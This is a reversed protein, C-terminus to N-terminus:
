IEVCNVRHSQKILLGCLRIIPLEALIAAVHVTACHMLAHVSCGTEKCSYMCDFKYLCSYMRFPLVSGLLIVQVSGYLLLTTFSFYSLTFELLLVCVTYYGRGLPLNGLLCM